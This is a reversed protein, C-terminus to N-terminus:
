FVIHISRIAFLCKKCVNKFKQKKYEMYEKIKNTMNNKSHNELGYRPTKNNSNSNKIHLNM